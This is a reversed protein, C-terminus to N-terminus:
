YPLFRIFPIYIRAVRYGIYLLVATLLIWAWKPVRYKIITEERKEEKIEERIRTSIVSTITDGKDEIETILDGGDSFVHIKTNGVELIQDIAALSDNKCPTKIENRSIVPQFILDTKIVLSSDKIFHTKEIVISKTRCGVTLLLLIFVILYRNKM